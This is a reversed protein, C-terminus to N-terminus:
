SDLYYYDLNLKAFPPSQFLFVFNSSIEAGGAKLLCKSAANM